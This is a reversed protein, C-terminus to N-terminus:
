CQNHIYRTKKSLKNLRLTEVLATLDLKEVHVILTNLPHQAKSDERLRVGIQDLRDGPKSGEGCKVCVREQNM